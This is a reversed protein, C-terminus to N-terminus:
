RCDACVGRYYLHVETAKFGDPPPPLAFNNDFFIDFVRGCQTCKLHGHTRIDADFRMEGNEILVPQVAGHELFLKLTNYVTTRSLTPMDPLLAQYITDVTPHNRYQHLYRYVAMRPSSAKVGFSRLVEAGDAPSMTDSKMVNMEEESGRFFRRRNM